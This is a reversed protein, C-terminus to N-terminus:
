AAATDEEPKFPTMEDLERHDQAYAMTTRLDAHGVALRIDDAVINKKFCNTIFTRRLDHTAYDLKEGNLERSKAESIRALEKAFKHSYTDPHMLKIPTSFHKYAQRNTAFWHPVKRDERSKLIDYQPQGDTFAILQRYIFLFDKKVDEAVSAMSEQLRLGYAWQRWVFPRIDESINELIIKIHSDPIYKGVGQKKWRKRYAKMKGRTYAKLRVSPYLEPDQGHLWELFRNMAQMQKSITDPAVPEDWLRYKDADAGELECFLALSWRKELKKWKIPDPQKCKSIFWNLNKRAYFYLADRFTKSDVEAKLEEKYREMLPETIFTHRWEYAEKARELDSKFRMNLQRLLQELTAKSAKGDYEGAYNAWKTKRKGDKLYYCYRRIRNITNGKKDKDPVLYWKSWVDLPKLKRMAM